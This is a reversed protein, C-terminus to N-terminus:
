FIVPTKDFEKDRSRTLHTEVEDLLLEAIGAAVGPSGRNIRSTSSRIRSSPYKYPMVLSRISLRFPRCEALANAVDPFLSVSRWIFCFGGIRETHPLMRIGGIVEPQRGM